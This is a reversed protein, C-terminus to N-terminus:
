NVTIRQTRNAENQTEIILLKKAESNLLVAEKRKQIKEKDVYQPLNYFPWWKKCRRGNHPTPGKIEGRSDPKAKVLQIHSLAIICTRFRSRLLEQLRRKQQKKSSRCEQQTYFGPNAELVILYVCPGTVGTAGVSLKSVSLCTLSAM